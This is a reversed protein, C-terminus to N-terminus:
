RRPRTPRVLDIAPPWPSPEVRPRRRRSHWGLIQLHALGEPEQLAQGDLGGEHMIFLDGRGPTDGASWATSAADSLYGEVQARSLAAQRSDGGLAELAYSRVLKPWLSVLLRRDPFVDVAVIREDIQVAVGNMDPFDDPLDRLDSVVNDLRRALRGDEYVVQLAGSPSAVGTAKHTEAVSDWVAGQGAESMAAQRVRLNSISGGSNFKRRDGRYGWRGHEVCYVAVTVEGSDPPLWLDNKLVRDQRAGSLIEGAMIFVPRDGRNEVVLRNVDGEERIERVVVEDQMLASDLSRCRPLYEVSGVLPFVILSGSRRPRQVDCDNLWSAPRSRAWCALGLLLVFLLRSIRM